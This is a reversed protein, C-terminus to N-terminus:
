RTIKCGKFIYKVIQIWSALSSPIDNTINFWWFANKFTVRVSNVKSGFNNFLKRTEEPLPLSRLTVSSFTTKLIKGCPKPLRAHHLTSLISFNCATIFFHFLWFTLGPYKVTLFQQKLLGLRSFSVSRTLRKQGGKIPLKFIFNLGEFINFLLCILLSLKPKIILLNETLTPSYNLRPSEGKEAGGFNRGWGVWELSRRM